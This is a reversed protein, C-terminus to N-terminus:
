EKLEGYKIKYLKELDNFNELWLEKDKETFPYFKRWFIKGKEQHECIYSLGFKKAFAEGSQTIANTVIENIYIDNKAFQTFVDFISKWLKITAETHRYQAKLCISVFYINYEGPLNIPNVIDVTIKSDLLKGEKALNFYED